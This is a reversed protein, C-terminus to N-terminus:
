SRMRPPQTHTFECRVRSRSSAGPFFFFCALSASNGKWMGSKEFLSLFSLFSCYSRRQRVEPGLVPAREVLEPCARPGRNPKLEWDDNGVGPVHFPAGPQTGSEVRM